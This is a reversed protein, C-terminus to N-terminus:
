CSRGRGDDVPDGVEPHWHAHAQRHPGSAALLTRRVRPERHSSAPQRCQRGRHLLTWSAASHGHGQLLRRDGSLAFRRDPRPWTSGRLRRRRVGRHRRRHHSPHQHPRRCEVGPLQRLSSSCGTISPTSRPSAHLIAKAASRLRRHHRPRAPIRSRGPEYQWLQAAVLRIRRAPHARHRDGRGRARFALTRPQRGLLRQTRRRESLRQRQHPPRCLGASIRLVLRHSARAALAFGVVTWNLTIENMLPMTEPLFSKGVALALAALGIGLLRRHRQDRPKRPRDPSATHRRPASPSASPPKASVAFPASWSFDPLIPAPSSCCSLWPSSSCAYCRGPKCCPSKSCRIFSPSSASTRPTLRITACSRSPWAIPM